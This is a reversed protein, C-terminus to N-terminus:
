LQEVKVSDNTYFAVYGRIREVHDQPDEYSWAADQTRSSKNVITFYSADGKHPCVTTKDSRDLFEMAIDDRPFYIVEPYDGETMELAARTEGLVAGGSRVVWHGEIARVRIHDNM